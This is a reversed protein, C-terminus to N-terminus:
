KLPVELEARYRRERLWGLLGVLLTNGIQIVYAFFVAAAGDTKVRDDTFYLLLGAYFTAQFAGFFGPPAPLMFGLAFVGTIAIAEVFRLEHFGCGLLLFWIGAVQAMWYTVTFLLYITASPRDNLFELGAALRELTSTLREAVKASLKGLTQEILRSMRRQQWRFLVLLALATSFGLMALKAARGIVRPDRFTPGAIEHIVAHGPAIALAGSLMLGVCLGDIIREGGITSAAALGSVGYRRALLPRVFEGTRLPFLVLAGNGIATLDVAVKLPLKCFSRLLWNWRVGRSVQVVFFWGAYALVLAKNSRALAARDPLIPLAGARLIWVFVLLLVLSMLLRIVITRKSTPVRSAAGEERPKQGSGNALNSVSDPQNM